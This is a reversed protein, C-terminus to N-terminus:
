IHRAPPASVRYPSSESHAAVGIPSDRICSRPNM